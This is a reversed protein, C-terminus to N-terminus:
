LINHFDCFETARLIAQNRASYLKKKCLGNKCNEIYCIEWELYGNASQSIRIFLEYKELKVAFQAIIIFIYADLMNYICRWMIKM